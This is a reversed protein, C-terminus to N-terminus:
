HDPAWGSRCEKGVRREESRAMRWLKWKPLGLNSAEWVIYAGMAAAIVDGAVPILGVIADLGVPRNIGPIVFSRELLHELAELRQRVALPDRGVPLGGLGNLPRPRQPEVMGMEERTNDPYSLSRRCPISRGPTPPLAKSM